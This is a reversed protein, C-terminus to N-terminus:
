IKSFSPGIFVAKNPKPRAFDAILCSGQGFNFNLSLKRFIKPKVRGNKLARECSPYILFKFLICTMKIEYKRYYEFTCM